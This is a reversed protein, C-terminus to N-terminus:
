ISWKKVSRSFWDMRIVYTDSKVHWIKVARLSTPALYYKWFYTDLIRNVTPTPPPRWAWVWPPLNLPRAPPHGPGCGPPRWVLAQTPPTYGLMCQPLCGGLLRSSSRATHMRSSHMRTINPIQLFEKFCNVTFEILSFFMLVVRDHCNSIIILFHLLPM